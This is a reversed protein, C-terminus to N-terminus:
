ANVAAGAGAVAGYASSLVGGRAGACGHSAQQSGARLRCAFGLRWRNAGVLDGSSMCWCSLM